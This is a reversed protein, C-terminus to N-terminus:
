IKVIESLIGELLLFGNENIELHNESFNLLNENELIALKDERLIDLINKGCIKNVECNTLKQNLRLRMILFESIIDEKSLINEQMLGNNKKSVMDLWKEPLHYNITAIKKGNKTVRGHAGAGIGIYDGYNWYNINHQCQSNKQAYNSIEYRQLGHDKLINTTLKYHESLIDDNQMKLKGSKFLQYFKTGKEITLQYLSLHKGAYKLSELLEEQWLKLSKNPLGYILDFSYNAFEQKLSSIVNIAEKANHERGLFKLDADNLAQVGLSIRNIGAKKFESFKEAEYSTPNTELSIETKEDVQWLERINSIIKDVLNPDMLSPTGGGFFISTIKQYSFNEKYYELESQYHTLLKKQDVKDRVHSNFDCYPCKSKCFPYHIYIATKNPNSIKSKV